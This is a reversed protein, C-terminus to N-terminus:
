SDERAARPRRAERDLELVFRSVELIELLPIPEPAQGAAHEVFRRLLERHGKDATERSRDVGSVGYVSFSRFDDIVASKGDWHIEIREKGIAPHGLSLYTLTALSGDEHRCSLVFNDGIPLDGRADPPALVHIAHESRPAGVLDRLLDIM